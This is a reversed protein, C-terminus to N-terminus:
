TETGSKMNNIYITVNWTRNKKRTNIHKSTIM